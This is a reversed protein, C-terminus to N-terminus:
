LERTKQNHNGASKKSYAQIGLVGYAGESLFYYNTYGAAELHYMLWRVQKGVQDFILLTDNTLKKKKIINKILIDFPQAIVKSKVSLGDMMESNKQRFKKLNNRAEQTFEAQAAATMFGKQVNDRADIVRVGDQAAMKKFDEWTLCKKKFESTPIWSVSSESMPKGLLITNDPFLDAWGPIGLDFAYTNEIGAGVARLQAEYSKFCTTGNCYFSIKKGPNAQALKKIGAAFVHSGVPIHVAGDVHIANYELESRVDVIVISGDLYNQYLEDIEIYPVSQYKPEERGPYEIAVATAALLLGVFFGAFLSCLSAKM